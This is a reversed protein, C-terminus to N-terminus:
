DVTKLPKGANQMKAHQKCLLGAEPVRRTCRYGAKTFAECQAKHEAVKVELGQGKKEECDTDTDCPVMGAALQAADTGLHTATPQQARAACGALLLALALTTITQKM